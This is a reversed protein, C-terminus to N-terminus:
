VPAQSDIAQPSGFPLTKPCPFGCNYGGTTQRIATLVALGDLHLLPAYIWVDWFGTDPSNAINSKPLANEM